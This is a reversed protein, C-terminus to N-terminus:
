NAAACEFALYQYEDMEVTVKGPTTPMKAGFQSRPGEATITYPGVCFARMQKEADARRAASWAKPGNRLYRLFGGKGPKPQGITFLQVKDGYTELMHAKCGALSAALVVLAITKM